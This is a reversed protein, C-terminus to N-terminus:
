NLSKEITELELYALNYPNLLNKNREFKVEENTQVTGNTQSDEQQIMM